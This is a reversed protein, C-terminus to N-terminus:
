KRVVPRKLWALPVQRASVTATIPPLIAGYGSSLVPRVQSNEVQMLPLVVSLPKTKAHDRGTPTAKVVVMNVSTDGVSVAEVVTFTLFCHDCSQDPPRTVSHSLRVCQVDAM